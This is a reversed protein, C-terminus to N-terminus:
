FRFLLFPSQSKATKQEDGIEMVGEFLNVPCHRGRRIEVRHDNGAILEIDGILIVETDLKDHDRIIQHPDCASM